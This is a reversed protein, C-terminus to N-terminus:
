RTPESIAAPMCIARREAGIWGGLPKELLPPGVINVLPGGFLNSGPSVTGLWALVRVSVFSSGSVLSSLTFEITGANTRGVDEYKEFESTNM